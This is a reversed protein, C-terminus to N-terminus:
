AASAERALIDLFEEATRAGKRRNCRQCACCMNEPWSTGGRAIPVKHDTDYKAGLPTRCYFCRGDQEAFIRAIDHRTYRGGAGAIRARRTNYKARTFEPHAKAWADSMARAKEPHARRWKAAYRHTRELDARQYRASEAIIKARHKAYYAKTDASRKARNRKRWDALYALKRERNAARYAAQYAKTCPQCPKGRKQAVGCKPCPKTSDQSTAM